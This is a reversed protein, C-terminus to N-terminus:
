ENEIKKLEERVFEIFTEPDSLATSYQDRCKQAFSVIKRNREETLEERYDKLILKIDGENRVKDIVRYTIGGLEVFEFWGLNFPLNSIESQLVDEDVCDKLTITTVTSKMHFWLDATDLFDFASKEM